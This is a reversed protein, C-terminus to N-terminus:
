ATFEVGAGHGPAQRLREERLLYNVHALTESFAFGMQHPDDIARGFVIPVLDAATRPAVRCAEVIIACRAEHHEVLEDIRNHLGVFPLNHGPLV